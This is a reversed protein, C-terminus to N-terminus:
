ALSGHVSNGETHQHCRQVPSLCPKQVVSVVAMCVLLSEEPVLPRLSCLPVPFMVPDGPFRGKFRLHQSVVCFYWTTVTVYGNSSMHICMNNHVATACLLLSCNRYNERTDEMM